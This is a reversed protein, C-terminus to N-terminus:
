KKKEPTTNKNEAASRETLIGTKKYRQRANKRLNDLLDQGARDRAQDELFSRIEDKVKDFNKIKASLKGEFRAVEYKGDKNKVPGIIQGESAKALDDLFEQGFRSLITKEQYKFALGGKKADGATSLEKALKDIDEGSEVRKFVAQAQELTDLTIHSFSLYNPEKLNPNTEKNEDYYKKVQEDSIKVDNQVKQILEGAISKKYAIDALFKIRADKDIGRKAAEEYLLQTNLWYDAVNKVTIYDPQPALFNIQGITLQNGDLVLVVYNPDKPVAPGEFPQPGPRIAADGPPAAQATFSIAFFVLLFITKKM